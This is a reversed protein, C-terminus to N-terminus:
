KFTFVSTYSGTGGHYWTVQTTKSTAYGIPHYQYTYLETSGAVGAANQTILKGPNNKRLRVYPNFVNVDFYDETNIKTDYDSSIFTTLLKAEAGYSTYYYMNMVELNNNADYQFTDKSTPILGGEEPIDQYTIHETLRGRVDYAFAHYKSWTGNVYEDTRSIKDGTYTYVFRFGTDSTTEVMKGNSHYTFNQTSTMTGGNPLASIMRIQILQNADNYVYERTFDQEEFRSPKLEVSVPEPNNTDCAIVVFSLLFILTISKM